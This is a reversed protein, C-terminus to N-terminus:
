AVVRPESELGKAPDGGEIRLLEDGGPVAALATRCEYRVVRMDEAALLKLFDKDKHVSKDDVFAGHELWLALLGLCHRKGSDSSSGGSLQSKMTLTCREDVHKYCTAQFDGNSSYFTVCGGPLAASVVGSAARRRKGAQSSQAVSPPPLPDPPPPALPPPLPPPATDGSATPPAASTSPHLLGLDEEYADLLPNLLELCEAPDEDDVVVRPEEEESSSPEEPGPPAAAAGGGSSGGAAAGSARGASHKERPWFPKPSAFTPEVILPVPSASFQPIYRPVDELRFWQASMTGVKAFAQFAPYFSVFHDSGRIYCRHVSPATEGPNDVPMVEWFTPEIPSLYMLGIHYWRSITLPLVGAVVDEYSTMRGALKVVFDGQALAKRKQSGFPFHRKMHKLFKDAIKRVTVGEGTCICIGAKQCASQGPAEGEQMDAPPAIERHLLDWHAELRTSMGHKQSHSAAWALPGAVDEPTPAKVHVHMGSGLPVAVMPLAALAPCVHRLAAVAGRGQKEDYVHLVELAKQLDAQHAVTDIRGVQRAIAVTEAVSSNTAQAMAALGFAQSATSGAWARMQRAMAMRRKARNVHLGTRRSGGFGHGSARRAFDTAVSGLRKAKLYAESRAAKAARYDAAMDAMTQAGSGGRSQLRLWARWPGGGGRGAGKKKRRSPGPRKRKAHGGDCRKKAASKRKKSLSLLYHPVQHHRQQMFLFQASLDPFAMAWSQCSKSVLMRRISAHRAEIHSVDVRLLLAVTSLIQLLAPGSWTPYKARMAKTWSDLMCEPANATSAAWKHDALVLFAAFPYSEHRSALLYRHACGMRSLTRFVSARRAVTHASKPVLVWMDPQAELTCLMEVLKRDDDGKAVEVVRFKRVYDGGELLSKALTSQERFDWLEAARHFQRDLYVRMPEMFLRM